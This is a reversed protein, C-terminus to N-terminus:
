PIALPLPPFVAFPGAMPTTTDWPGPQRGEGGVPLWVPFLPAHPAHLTHFGLWCGPVAEEYIGEGM